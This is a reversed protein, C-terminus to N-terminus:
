RNKSLSTFGEMDCFMVMVQERQGEIRDRRSLIKETIGKPLDKQLKAIKEDFSHEKSPSATPTLKRGCQNCFRGGAPNTKGGEPCARELKEGCGNCCRADSPNEHECKPCKM